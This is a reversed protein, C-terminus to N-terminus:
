WQLILLNPLNIIRPHTSENLIRCLPSIDWVVLLRWSLGRRWTARSSRTVKIPPIFSARCHETQAITRLKSLTPSESDSPRLHFFTTIRTFM